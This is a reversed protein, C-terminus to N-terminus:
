NTSKPAFASRLSDWFSKRETKQEERFAKNEARQTQVQAKMAERAQEQTLNPNSALENLKTQNEEFQQQRHTKFEQYQNEQQNKIETKQADTLKTNAALKEDMKAIREQHRKDAFQINENYQEGRHSAIASAKEAPTKGKLSERFAHNEARQQGFHAQRKAKMEQRFQRRETSDAFASQSLAFISLTILTILKTNM